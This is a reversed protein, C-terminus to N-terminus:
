LARCMEAGWPTGIARNYNLKVEAFNWDRRQWISGDTYEVRNIVVNEQFPSAAKDALTGVSIVDSPGSLGFSLVEKEKGPKINVGCLFQRRVLTSSDSAESFQYEWFLIEIVKTGANKLKIKYAYGDVARAKPTRSEQVIRDLQAARGDTTDANPPREGAPANVKRREYNRDAQTVASAPAVHTSNAQAQETTLRGKSWKASVVLVASGNDSNAANQNPLAITVSFLLLLLTKM